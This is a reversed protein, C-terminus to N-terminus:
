AAGASLSRPLGDAYRPAVDFPGLSREIAAAASIALREEFAPAVFQAALPLGDETFGCPTSIAPLGALSAPLTYIDALYMSLPDDTREGLSFAPAPATPGLIVDCSAFASEYDRRILTRLKQARLYYADYYGSSLAYTGLMIRRKVEPGFGRARTEEYTARLDAASARAGYRIGDFRALNSSAECPAILYYASVAHAASPLAVDVLTAGEAELAKAARQIGAVVREDNGERELDGKLVGIRLGRVGQPAFDDVARSASTADRPDHGSIATLLTAASRVDRALTGIQDLSSAFAVLGYRSVRGHTPKIGTVGCFAAPQRVSGGTDSGLAADCLGAAVAAASGSSSGGPVRALDHPNRTAGFASNEGSSGMAFEDLNTKGILTAGNARLRTVVHADYPSVFNALMNSGCTTKQGRTCINDKVAVVWGSLPGPAAPALAGEGDVHLFANLEGDHRAIRDLYRRTRATGESPTQM